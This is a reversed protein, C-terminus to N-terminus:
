NTSPSAPFSTAQNTANWVQVSGDVCGSAIWKGDPSWALTLVASTNGSYTSFIDGTIASCVVPSNGSIAALKSGDPSWAVASTNGRLSFRFLNHEGTKLNWMQVSDWPTRTMMNRQGQFGATPVTNM